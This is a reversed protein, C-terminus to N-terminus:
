CDGVTMPWGRGDEATGENKNGHGWGDNLIGVM